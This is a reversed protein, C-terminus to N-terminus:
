EQQLGKQQVKKYASQGLHFFCCSVEGQPHVTKAATIIEMEFDTMIRQPGVGRIRHRAAFDKVAQLVKTYHVQTKSPLLAYVLPVATEIDDSGLTDGPRKVLGIITFIQSFIHPATKFTGTLFWLLCKMLIEINRRSGFIIIRNARAQEDDQDIDDDEYSDYLIFDDGGLTVRYRFKIIIFSILM